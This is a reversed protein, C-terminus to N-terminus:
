SSQYNPLCTILAKALFKLQRISINYRFSKLIWKTALFGENRQIFYWTLDCWTTILAEKVPLSLQKNNKLSQYLDIKIKLNSYLHEVQRDQLSSYGQGQARQLYLQDSLLGCTFKLAARLALECDWLLCDEQYHGLQLSTEKSMVIRQFPMPIRKLLASFLNQNFQILYSSKEKGQADLTVKRTNKDHNKQGYEAREGFWKVGIFLIKIQPYTELQQVSRELYIPSYLDDDDLFTIYKGKTANIGTNKAAAGGKSITHRIVRLNQSYKKQLVTENVPPESNDDVIILEWNKETQNIVSEIAEELLIPRNHTPLIISILPTLKKKATNM